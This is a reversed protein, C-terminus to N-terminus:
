ILRWLNYYDSKKHNLDYFFMGNGFNSYWKQDEDKFQEVFEKSHIIKKHKGIMGAATAFTSSGSILVDCETLISFDKMYYNTPEHYFSAKISILYSLTKEYSSFNPDPDDTCLYFTVDGDFEDIVFNIANIYYEPPHIERCNMGDAGRTDGGRIHIGVKVGDSLLTPKSKLKIFDRPDRLSLRFFPGCLSYTNLKWDGNSYLEKLEDHSKYILHDPPIETGNTSENLKCTQEFMEYSDWHDTSCDQGILESLQMLTNFHFVKNGHRGRTQKDILLM